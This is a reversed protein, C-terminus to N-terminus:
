QAAKYHEHPELLQEVHNSFFLLCAPCWEHDYDGPNWSALLSVPCYVFKQGKRNIGRFHTGMVDRYIDWSKHVILWRGGFLKRALTFFRLGYYIMHGIRHDRRM